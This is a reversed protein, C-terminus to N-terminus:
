DSSNAYSKQRCRRRIRLALPAAVLVWPFGQLGTSTCGCGDTPKSAQGGDAGARPGADASGCVGLQWCVGPWSQTVCVDTQPTGAPCALPGVVDQFAALKTWGKGDTSRGLAFNDPEWNAGCGYLLGDPGEDICAMRPPDDIAVFTGAAGGSTSIRVGDNITAVIVDGSDKRVVVGTIADATTLVKTWSVGADSSRYLSDGVPIETGAVRAFVVDPNQPHIAEIFILPEPGFTFDDTELVVWSDGADDTRRLHVVPVPGGMGNVEYGSVYLRSPNSKAVAISRWWGTTTELGTGVFGQGTYPRKVLVDNLQATTATTIWVSNDSAVAVEAVWTDDPLVGLSVTTWTCGGDVSRRLGQFTTAYLTGDSTIAYDPDFTGGYGVADECVWRWSAGGDKSSLLGFTVPLLISSTDNPAFRVNVSAPFRGNATAPRPSALTCVV